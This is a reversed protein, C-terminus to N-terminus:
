YFTFVPIGLARAAEAQNKDATAFSTAGYHRAHALHLADLARLPLEPILDILQRAENFLSIADLQIRWTRAQVDRDFEALALRELPPDIQRARRRCALLCRFEVLTLPSTAVDDQADAWDLVDLSRPERIYCKALASTDIYASM